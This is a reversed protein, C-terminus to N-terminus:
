GIRKELEQLYWTILEEAVSDDPFFEARDQDLWGEIEPAALEFEFTRQSIEKPHRSLVRGPRAPYGETLHAALGSDELSDLYSFWWSVSMVLPGRPTPATVEVGGLHGPIRTVQLHISTTSDLISQAQSQVLDFIRKAHAHVTPVIGKSQRFRRKESAWQLARDIRRAREEPTEPKVSTGLRMLVTEVTTIASAVGYRLPDGYIIHPPLWPPPVTNGDVVLVILFEDYDQKQFGRTRIAREEIRTWPTTSWETRYLVVDLRAEALFIRTLRDEGDRSVLEHQREPFFFVRLREKLGEYLQHALEVDRNLFSLAVDYEYVTSDNM